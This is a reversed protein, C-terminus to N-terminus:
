NFPGDQEFPSAFPSDPAGQPAVAGRPMPPMPPMVSTMMILSISNDIEIRKVAPKIYSRKNAM